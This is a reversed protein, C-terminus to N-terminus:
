IVEVEIDNIDKPIVSPDQAYVPEVSGQPLTAIDHSGLIKLKCTYIGNKYENSIINCLRVLNNTHWGVTIGKQFLYHDIQPNNIYYSKFRM